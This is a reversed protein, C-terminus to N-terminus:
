KAYKKPTSDFRAKCGTSCFYYTKGQYTSKQAISEDIETGCVLDRTM